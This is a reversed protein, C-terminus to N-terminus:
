THMGTNEILRAVTGSFSEGIGTSERALEEVSDPLYITRRSM